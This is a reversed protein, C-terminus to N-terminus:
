IWKFEVTIKQIILSEDKLFKVFNKSNKAVLLLLIIIIMFSAQCKKTYKINFLNIFIYYNCTLNTDSM